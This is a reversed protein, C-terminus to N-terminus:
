RSKKLPLSVMNLAKGLIRARRSEPPVLILRMRQMWAAVKWAKSNLIDNLQGQTYRLVADKEALAREKEALNEAMAKEKEALVQLVATKESNGWLIKQDRKSIQELLQHIANQVTAPDTDYQQKESKQISM